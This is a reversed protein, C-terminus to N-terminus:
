LSSGHNSISRSLKFIITMLFENSCPIMMVPGYMSSDCCCLELAGVTGSVAHGPKSQLTVETNVSLLCVPAIKLNLHSGVIFYGLDLEFM